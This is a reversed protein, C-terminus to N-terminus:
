VLDLDWSPIHDEFSDENYYLEYIDPEGRKISLVKAYLEINKFMQEKQHGRPGLM